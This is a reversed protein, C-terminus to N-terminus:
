WLIQHVSQGSEPGWVILQVLGSDQGAGQWPLLALKCGWRSSFITGVMQYVQHSFGPLLPSQKVLTPFWGKGITRLCHCVVGGEGGGGEDGVESCLCTGQRWLPRMQGLVSGPFVSLFQALM